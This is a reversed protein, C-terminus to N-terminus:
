RTPTDLDAVMHTPEENKVVKDQHAAFRLRGQRKKKKGWEWIAYRMFYWSMDKISAYRMVRALRNFPSSRRDGLVWLEQNSLGLCGCVGV